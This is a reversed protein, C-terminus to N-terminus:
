FIVCNNNNWKIVVKCIRYGIDQQKIKCRFEPKPYLRCMRDYLPEKYVDDNYETFFKRYNMRSDEKYFLLYYKEGNMVDDVILNEDDLEKNLRVYLDQLQKNKKEEAKIKYGLMEIYSIM